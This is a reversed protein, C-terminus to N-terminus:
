RRQIDWMNCWLQLAMTVFACNAEKVHLDNHGGGPIMVIECVLGLSRATNQILLSGEIPAVWDENGHLLLIPVSTLDPDTHAYLALLKDIDYYGDSTHGMLVQTTKTRWPMFWLPISLLGHTTAYLLSPFSSEIILGSLTTLNSENADKWEKFAKSKSIIAARTAQPGGLSHGWIYLPTNYPIISPLHRGLESHSSVFELLSTTSATLSAEDPWGPSDAYGPPDFAVVVADFNIALNRHLNRMYYSARTCGLGHYLLVVRSAVRLGEKHIIWAGLDDHDGARSPIRVPIYVMGDVVPPDLTPPHIVPVRVQHFHLAAERVRKL